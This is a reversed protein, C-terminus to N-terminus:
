AHDYIPQRVAVCVNQGTTSSICASIAAADGRAAARSGCDSAARGRDDIEILCRRVDRAVACTAHNIRNFPMKIVSAIVLANKFADDRADARSVCDSAARGRDDIEILCLFWLQAGIYLNGNKREARVLPKDISSARVGTAM